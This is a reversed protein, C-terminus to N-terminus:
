KVPEYIDYPESVGDPTVRNVTVVKHAEGNIWIITENM